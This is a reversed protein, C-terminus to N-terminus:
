RIVLVTGKKFVPQKTMTNFYRVMWIFTGSPVQRGGFTGDWGLGPNASRFILEGWRDYVAMQFDTM